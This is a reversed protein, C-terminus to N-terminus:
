EHLGDLVEFFYKKTAVSIPGKIEALDYPSDGITTMEEKVVDAIVWKILEGVHKRESANTEEIGQVIRWVPTVLNGLAERAEQEVSDVKKRPTKPAGGHKLGKTKLRLMKGKYDCWLYAGEGVNNPKDFHKAIPSNDEIQEALTKLNAICEAPNNFDLAISYTGFDSMRYIGTTLPLKDTAVFKVDDPDEENVIRMYDFIYMAKDTGSCAANGKQINGGGWEADIIATYGTPITLTNFMALFAEKHRDVYAAMGNQDGQITRIHNRGQVWLEGNSMAIACNEGHLKESGTFLLVPTIVNSQYDALAQKQEPTPPVENNNPNWGVHAFMAESDCTLAQVEKRLTGFNPTSGFSRHKRM